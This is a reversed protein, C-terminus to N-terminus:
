SVQYVNLRDKMDQAIDSLQKSAAAVQEAGVVNDRAQQDISAVSVNVSNTLANQEKSSQSITQTVQDVNSINVVIKNLVNTIENAREVANQATNNGNEISAFANQSSERLVAVVKAIEETSDQTRKALSRVEDAVVAFGRGQEGARAAEIAANLALLNTQDAVSKIVDVMGLINNVRENLIEITEGVKSVEKATLEIGDVATSVATEGHSTETAAQQANDAALEMNNLVEQISATMQETASAIGSIDLQLQILNHKSQEVAAATQTSAENIEIANTQFRQLDQRVHFFTENISQAIHGLDDHTIIEAQTTFDKHKDVAHMVRSIEKAQTARIKITVFVAHATAMALVLLILELVIAVQRSTVKASAYAEIHDVLSQETNKLKNIRATAAAFWTETAVDFEGDSNEAIKRLREVERTESSNIFAQLHQRFDNDVVAKASALYTNQRTKLTHYRILLTPTFAGRGFVNSLVAREIGAQEKAYAINYLTLFKEASATEELEAALTSNLDLILQNNASYYSLVDPLSIAFADVQARIATLQGLRNFLNSMTRNTADHYDDDDYFSKLDHLRADTVRRQEAIQRAFSVGKSGIFGASFGREKQLEHVLQSTYSVLYSDLITDNAQNLAHYSKTLNASIYLVLFVVPILTLFSLYRSLLSSM